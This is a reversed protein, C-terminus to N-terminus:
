LEANTVFLHGDHPGVKGNVWLQAEAALANRVSSPVVGETAAKKHVVVIFM